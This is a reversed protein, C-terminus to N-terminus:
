RTGRSRSTDRLQVTSEEGSPASPSPEAPPPTGTDRASDHLKILRDLPLYLLNNGGPVDVLVKRTTSLITEMADLYLRERTVEPAKQYETLLQEFRSAEGEAKAAVQDKYAQSEKL